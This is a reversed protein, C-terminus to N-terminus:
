TRHPYYPATGETDPLLLGRALHWELCSALIQRAKNMEYEAREMRGETIYRAGAYYHVRCREEDDGASSLAEDADILGLTLRLIMNVFLIEKSGELINNCFQRIEEMRGLRQYSILMLQVLEISFANKSSDFILKQTEEICDSYREESFLVVCRAIEVEHQPSGNVQESAVMASLHLTLQRGLDSTGLVSSIAHLLFRDSSKYRLIARQLARMRELIGGLDRVMAGGALENAVANLIFFGLWGRDHATPVMQGDIVYLPMAIRSLWERYLAQNQAHVFSPVVFFEPHDCRLVAADYARKLFFRVIAGPKVDIKGLAQFVYIDDPIKTNKYPSLVLKITEAMKIPSFSDGLKKEFFEYVLFIVERMRNVDPPTSDDIQARNFERLTLCAQLFRDAPSIGMVSTNLFKPPIVPPSPPNLAVDIAVALLIVNKGDLEWGTIRKFLDVVPKSPGVFFAGPDIMYEEPLEPHHHAAIFENVRAGSEFLHTAGLNTNDDLTIGRLEGARVGSVLWAPAVKDVYEASLNHYLLQKSVSCFATYAALPQAVEVNTQFWDKPVGGSWLFNLASIRLWTTLWKPPGDNQTELLPLDKAELQTLNMTNGTVLSFKSSVCFFKFIGFSTGVYQLWHAQEHAHTIYKIFESSLHEPIEPEEGASTDALRAQFVVDKPVTVAASFTVFDLLGFTSFAIDSSDNPFHKSPM